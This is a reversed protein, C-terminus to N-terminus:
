KWQKKLQCFCNGIQQTTLRLSLQSASTIFETGSFANIYIKVISRNSGNISCYVMQVLDWVEPWWVYKQNFSSSSSAKQFNNNGEFQLGVVWMYFPKEVYILKFHPIAKAFLQLVSHCWYNPFKNFNVVKKEEDNNTSTKLRELKSRLKIVEHWSIGIIM